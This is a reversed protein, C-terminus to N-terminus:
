IHIKIDTWTHLTVNWVIASLGLRRPQYISCTKGSICGRIEARCINHTGEHRWSQWGQGDNDVAMVESICFLSLSVFSPQVQCVREWGYVSKCLKTVHISWVSITGALIHLWPFATIPQAISQFATAINVKGVITTTFSVCRTWGVEASINHHWMSNIAWVAFLDRQLTDSASWELRSILM